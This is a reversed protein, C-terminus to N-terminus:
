FIIEHKHLSIFLKFQGSVGNKPVLLDSLQWMISKVINRINCHRISSKNPLNSKAPCKNSTSMLFAPNLWKFGLLNFAIM